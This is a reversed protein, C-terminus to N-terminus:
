PALTGREHWGAQLCWVPLGVSPVLPQCPSATLVAAWATGAPLACRVASGGDENLARKCGARCEGGAAAESSAKLLPLRSGAPWARGFRVAFLGSRWGNRRGHSSCSRCAEVMGGAAACRRGFAQTAAGAPDAAPEGQPDLGHCLKHVAGLVAFFGDQQGFDLGM